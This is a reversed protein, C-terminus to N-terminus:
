PKPFRWRGYFYLAAAGLIHWLTHGQLILGPDCWIKLEELMFSAFAILGLILSLLLSKQHLLPGEMRKTVDFMAGIFILFCIGVREWMPFRYFIAWLILYYMLLALYRRRPGFGLKKFFNYIFFLSLSFSVSAYDLAVSLLTYSSHFVLSSAGIIFVSFVWAEFLPKKRRSGRFLLIGAIFYALSSWFGLSFGFFQSQPGECHCLPFCEVFQIESM